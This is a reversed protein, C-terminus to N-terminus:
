IPSTHNKTDLLPHTREFVDGNWYIPHLTDVILSLVTIWDRVLKAPFPEQGPQLHCHAATSRHKKMDPGTVTNATHFFTIKSLGILHSLIRPDSSGDSYRKGDFSMVRGSVLLLLVQFHITPLSPIPKMLFKSTNLSPWGSYSFPPDEMQLIKWGHRPSSSESIILYSM